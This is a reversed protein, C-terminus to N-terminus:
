DRVIENYYTDNGYSRRNGGIQRILEVNQERLQTLQRGHTEQAHLIGRYYSVQDSLQRQPPAIRTPAHAPTRSYRQDRAPERPRPQRLREVENELEDLQELHRRERERFANRERLLRDFRAALDGFEARLARVKARHQKQLTAVTGELENRRRRVRALDRTLSSVIGDPPHAGKEEEREQEREEKEEEEEEEEIEIEEEMEEEGDVERELELEEEEVPRPRRRYKTV